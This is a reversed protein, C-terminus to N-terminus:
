RQESGLGSMCPDMLTSAIGFLFSTLLLLHRQRFLQLSPQVRDLGAGDHRAHGSYYCCVSFGKIQCESMVKQVALGWFASAFAWLM